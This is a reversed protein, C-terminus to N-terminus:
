CHMFFYLYMKSGGNAAAVVVEALYDTTYQSSNFGSYLSLFYRVPEIHYFM